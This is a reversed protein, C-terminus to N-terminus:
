AMAAVQSAPVELPATNDRLWELLDGSMRSSAKEWVERHYNNM